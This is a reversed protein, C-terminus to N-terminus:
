TGYNVGYARNKLGNLNSYNNKVVPGAPWESGTPLWRVPTVAAQSALAPLSGGDGSGMGAPTNPSRQLFASNNPPIAHPSRPEEMHEQQNGAMGPRVQSGIERITSTGFGGAGGGAAMDGGGGGGYYSFKPALQGWLNAPTYHGATYSDWQDMAEPQPM